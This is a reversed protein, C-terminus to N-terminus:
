PNTLARNATQLAQHHTLALNQLTTLVKPPQHTLYTTRAQNTTTRLHCSADCRADATAMATQRADLDPQSTGRAAMSRVSDIAAQPSNVGPWGAAAMCDKWTRAAADPQHPSRRSAAFSNRLDQPVLTDALAARVSGYLEARAQGVCGGTTYSGTAGSPLRMTFRPTQPGNLADLYRTRVPDPLTQVYHDEAPQGSAVATVGYTLPTAHSGHSIHGLADTTVVGATPEPGPDTVLYQLGQARMCRADLVQEARFLLWRDHVSGADVTLVAAAAATAPGAAAGSRQTRHSGCGSVAATAALTLAVCSLLGRRTTM